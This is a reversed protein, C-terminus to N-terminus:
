ILFGKSSLRKAYYYLLAGVLIVVVPFVWFTSGTLERYKSLSLNYSMQFIIVILSILFVPVCWKKKMLLGICGLTGTVVAIAFIITLWLPVNEFLVHQEAPLDELVADLMFTQRFWNVIGFGNWLLGIISIIWFTVPTKNAVNNM